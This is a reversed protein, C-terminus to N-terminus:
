VPQGEPFESAVIKKLIRRQECRFGNNLKTSRVLLCRAESDGVAPRVLYAELKRPSEVTVVSQLNPLSLLVVAEKGGKLVTSLNKYRTKKM